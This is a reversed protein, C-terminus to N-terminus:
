ILIATIRLAHITLSSREYAGETIINLTHWKKEKGVFTPEPITVGFLPLILSCARLEPTLLVNCWKKMVLQFLHYTGRGLLPTFPPKLGGKNILSFGQL